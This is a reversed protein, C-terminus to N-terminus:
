WSEWKLGHWSGFGLRLPPLWLTVVRGGHGRRKHTVNRTQGDIEVMSSSVLSVVLKGTGDKAIGKIMEIHSIRFEHDPSLLTAMVAHKSHSHIVSGADSFLFLRELYFSPYLPCYLFFFFLYFSPDFKSGM